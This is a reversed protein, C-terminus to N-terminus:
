SSADSNGPRSKDKGDKLHEEAEASYDEEMVIDSICRGCIPRKRYIGRARHKGCEGCKKLRITISGIFEDVIGM